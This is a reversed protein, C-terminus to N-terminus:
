AATNEPKATTEREPVPSIVEGRRSRSAPGNVVECIEDFREALIRQVELAVTKRDFYFFQGSLTLLTLGNPRRIAFKAKSVDVVQSSMKELYRHYDTSPVFRRPEEVERDKFVEKVAAQFRKVPGRPKEIAEDCFREENRQRKPTKRFKSLLM